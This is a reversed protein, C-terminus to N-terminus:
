QQEDDKKSRLGAIEQLLKEQKYTEIRREEEKSLKLPTGIDELIQMAAYAGNDHTNIFDVKVHLPIDNKKEESSYGLEKLRKHIDRMEKKSLKSEINTLKLNRRAKLFM